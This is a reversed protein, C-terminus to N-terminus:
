SGTSQQPQNQVGTPGPAEVREGPQPQGSELRIARATTGPSPDGIAELTAELTTLPKPAEYDTRAQQEKRKRTQLSGAASEVNTEWQTDLFVKRYAALVQPEDDEGLVKAWQRAPVWGSQLLDLALIGVRKVAHETRKALLAFIGMAASKLEQLQLASNTDTPQDGSVVDVKALEKLTESLWKCFEFMEGTMPPPAHFKRVDGKFEIWLDNPIVCRMGASTGELPRGEDDKMLRAVSEPMDETLSQYYGFYAKIITAMMNLTVNLDHVLEAYGSGQPQGPVPRCVNWILPIDPYECRKDELCESALITLQRIGDRIRPWNEAGPATPDQTDALVYGPPVDPQQVGVDGLSVLQRDLAEQETAPYCAHRLFVLRIAVNKQKWPLTALFSENLPAGQPGLMMLPTSGAQALLRLRDEHEPWLHIAKDVWLVMDVAIGDFHQELEHGPDPYCQLPPLHELQFGWTDPDRRFWMCSYGGLVCMLVSCDISMDAGATSWMSDLMAQGKDRAGETTIEVFDDAGLLPRGDQGPIVMLGKWQAEGMLSGDVGPVQQGQVKAMGATTLVYQCKGKDNKAALKPHLPVETMLHAVELCIQNTHNITVLKIGPIEQDWQDGVFMRFAENVAMAGRPYRFDRAQYSQWVLDQGIQVAEDPKLPEAALAKTETGVSDYGPKGANLDLPETAPVSPIPEAAPDTTNLQTM